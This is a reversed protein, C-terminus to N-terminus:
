DVDNLRSELAAFAGSNAPSQFQIDRVNGKELKIICPYINNISHIQISNEKDVFVNSHDAINIGTKYQLIKLSEVKTLVFFVNNNKIHNRMFAEGEQICGHCGIGPLIVVWNYNSNLNIKKVFPILDNYEIPKQDKQNCSTFVILSFLILYRDLLKM